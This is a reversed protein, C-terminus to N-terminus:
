RAALTVSPPEVLARLDPSLLALMAIRRTAPTLGEVRVERGAGVVHGQDDISLTQAPPSDMRITARGDADVAIRESALGSAGELRLVGDERLTALTRGSADSFVGERSWIGVIDLDVLVVGSPGILITSKGEILIRVPHHPLRLRDRHQAAEDPAAVATLADAHAGPVAVSLEGAACGQIGPALLAVLLSHHHHAM